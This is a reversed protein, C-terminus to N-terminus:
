IQIDTIAPIDVATSLKIAYGDIFVNGSPGYPAISPIPEMGKYDIPPEETINQLVRLKDRLIQCHKYFPDIAGPTDPQGEGEAALNKFGHARILAVIWDRDVRHLTNAQQFAGRSREGNFCILARPTEEGVKFIEEWLHKPSALIKVYGGRPEVWQYLWYQMMLAQWEITMIGDGNYQQATPDSPPNM